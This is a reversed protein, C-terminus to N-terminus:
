ASHMKQAAVVAEANVYPNRDSIFKSRCSMTLTLVVFFGGFPVCSSTAIEEYSDNNIGTKSSQLASAKNRQYVYRGVIVVLIYLLYLLIFVISM